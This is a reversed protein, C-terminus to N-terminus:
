PSRVTAVEGSPRRWEIRPSSSWTRKGGFFDKGSKETSGFDCKSSDEPRCRLGLSYSGGLHWRLRGLSQLLGTVPSLPLTLCLVEM